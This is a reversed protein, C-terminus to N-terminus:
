PQKTAKRGSCSGNLYYGVEKFTGTFISLPDTEIAAGNHIPIAHFIFLYIKSFM